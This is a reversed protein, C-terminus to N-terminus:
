DTYNMVFDDEREPAHPAAEPSRRVDMERWFRGFFPALTALLYLSGTTLLGFRTGVGGLWGGMLAGIPMGAYALATGLGAVRSQLRMPTREYMVASLIPNLAAVGVGTAFASAMALWLPSGFGLVFFRPAGAILFGFTYPAWRPLRPALATYVINTLIAGVGMAAALLGIGLASGYINHAWLPLLVSGYAQDLMNTVFLMLMLGLVLRDHRAFAFGARLAVRYPEHETQGRGSVRVAGGILLACLLFSAADVYLVDATGLVAILGGAALAGIMSAARSLGDVFSTARTMDIRDAAVTQPVMAGQKATDGIGRVLGALAVLALLGPFGLAGAGFLLPIAAVVVCSALDSAVSTIRGGIRDIMPGILACALVYPVMEVAAVVGTRGASHSTNLVLWPLAIGTLRTGVISITNAAVLSPFQKM